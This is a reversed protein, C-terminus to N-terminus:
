CLICSCISTSDLLLLMQALPQVDLVCFEGASVGTVTGSAPVHMLFNAMVEGRDDLRAACANLFNAMVEVHDDLRIAGCYGREQLSKDACM